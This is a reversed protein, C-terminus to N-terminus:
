QEEGVFHFEMFLGHFYKTCKLYRKDFTTTMLCFYMVFQWQWYELQAAVQKSPSKERSDRGEQRAGSKRREEKVKRSEEGARRNEEMKRREEEVGARRREEEKRRRENEENNRREEERRREEEKARNEVATNLHELSRSERKKEVASAQWM